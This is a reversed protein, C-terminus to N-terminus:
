EYKEEENKEPLYQGVLEVYFMNGYQYRWGGNKKEAIPHTYEVKVGDSYEEAFQEALEATHHGGKEAVYLLYGTGYNYAQVVSEMDCGNEEAVELLLSFYRCGQRLSEETKLTGPPLGVSESCQMVDKGIGASEVQMIALLYDTYDSVGYEQAYQEISSRYELVEPSLKTEKAREIGYVVPLIGALIFVCAMGVVIYKRCINKHSFQLKGYFLFTGTKKINEM